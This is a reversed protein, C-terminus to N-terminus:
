FQIKAETSALGDDISNKLVNIIKEIADSQSTLFQNGEQDQITIRTTHEERKLNFSALKMKAEMFRERKAILDNLDSVKQIKQEINLEPKQVEPKVEPLIEPKVEPVVPTEKTPKRDVIALDRGNKGNKGVTKVEKVENM